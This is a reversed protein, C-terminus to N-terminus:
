SIQLHFSAIWQFIRNQLRWRPNGVEAQGHGTKTNLILQKVQCGSLVFPWTSWSTFNLKLTVHSIWDFPLLYSFHIGQGPFRVFSFLDDRCSLFFCFYCVVRLGHRSRTFIMCIAITPFFEVRNSLYLCFYCLDRLGKRSKWNWPWAHLDRLRRYNSHIGHGSFRIFCCCFWRPLVFVRM